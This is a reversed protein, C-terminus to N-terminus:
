RAERFAYLIERGIQRARERYKEAEQPTDDFAKPDDYTLALRKEAGPILPCNEDADSCTMVAAFGSAPNAPDDFAKSWIRAPPAAPAYTVAYVPNPDQSLAEIGFGAQQMAQVARPNFATAETGGSYAQVKGIDYCAAAALAWLQGMHSRRSNHTCIFVLNVPLGAKKKEGIYATLQELLERRRAPIQDFTQELERVTQNLVPHLNM